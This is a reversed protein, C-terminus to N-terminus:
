RWVWQIFVYGFVAAIIAGAILAGTFVQGPDLRRDEWGPPNDSIKRIFM